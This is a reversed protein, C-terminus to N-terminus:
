QVDEWARSRLARTELVQRGSKLVRVVVCKLGTESARTAQFDSSQVWYVRVRAEWTSDSLAGGSEVSIPAIITSNYDDVDDYTLRNDAVEGGDLGLPPSTEQPDAYSKNAVEEIIQQAYAQALVRDQTIKRAKTAQTVATLGAGLLIAVVVSGLAAEILTFGHHGHQPRRARGRKSM